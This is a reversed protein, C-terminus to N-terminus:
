NTPAALIIPFADIDDLDTADQSGAIMTTPPESGETQDALVPKTVSHRARILKMRAREQITMSTEGQASLVSFSSSKKMGAFAIMGPLGAIAILLAGMMRSANSAKFMEREGQSTNPCVTGALDSSCVDSSWDRWYRTHRRRSSFCGYPSGCRWVTKESSVVCRGNSWGRRHIM